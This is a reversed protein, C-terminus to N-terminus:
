KGTSCRTATNGCGPYLRRTDSFADDPFCACRTKEKGASFTVEKRPRSRGDPCWVEGGNASTWKSDCAPFTTARAKNEAKAVRARAVAADFLRKNQTPIPTYGVRTVSDQSEGRTGTGRTDLYESSVGTGAEEEYWYGGVLYGVQKYGKKEDSDDDGDSRYFGAWEELSLMAVDGLGHVSSVLGHESFDGTHFARTADQGAFFRYGGNPGYHKAGSSVDFVQGTISVWIPSGPPDGVNRALESHTVARLVPFLTETSLLARSTSVRVWVQAAGWLFVLLLGTFM